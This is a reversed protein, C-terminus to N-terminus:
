RARGGEGPPPPDARPVRAPTPHDGSRVRRRHTLVRPYTDRSGYLAAYILDLVGEPNEAVENNWFRLVKYGQAELWRTREADQAM